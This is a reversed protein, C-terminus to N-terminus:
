FFSNYIIHILFFPQINAYSKHICFPYCQRRSYRRHHAGAVGYAHWFLLFRGDFAYGTVPQYGTHCGIGLPGGCGLQVGKAVLGKNSDLLLQTVPLVALSALFFPDLANDDGLVDEEMDSELLALLNDAVGEDFGEQFVGGGLALGGKGDDGIGAHLAQLGHETLGVAGDGESRGVELNAILYGEMETAKVIPGADDALSAVLRGVVADTDALEATGVHFYGRGGQTFLFLM